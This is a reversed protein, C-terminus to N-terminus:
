IDARAVSKRSYGRINRYVYEAWICKLLLSFESGSQHDRNGGLIVAEVYPMAEHNTLLEYAQKTVPGSHCVAIKTLMRFEMLAKM